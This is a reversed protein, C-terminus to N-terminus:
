KASFIGSNEGFFAGKGGDDRLITTRSLCIFDGQVQNLTKWAGGNFILM